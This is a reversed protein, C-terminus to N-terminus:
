SIRARASSEGALQECAELALLVVAADAPSRVDRGTLERFRALRNLLTNRHCFLASATGAVSGDGYCYARVAEILRQSEATTLSRVPDLVTHVLQQAVDPAQAVLIPLWADTLYRPGREHLPIARLTATAFRVADAVQTLGEVCPAVGCRVDHLMSDLDVTPGEPLEVLLLHGSSVEQTHCSIGRRDLRDRIRHLAEAKARDAVVITFRGQPDVALVRAALLVTAPHRGGTHVLEDFVAKREENIRRREERAAEQYAEMIGLTHREVVGWVLPASELLERFDEPTSRSLLGQWVVQADLRAAAMLADLPVGQAARRRGIQESVDEFQRPLTQGAISRLLLEFVHCATQRLDESSILGDGYGEALTYGFWTEALEDRDALCSLALASLRGGASNTVTAM